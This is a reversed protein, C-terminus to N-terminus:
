LLDYRAARAAEPSQVRSEPSPRLYRGPTVGMVRKFQRTFHAQDAFGCATAAVAPPMGRELRLRAADVRRSMYYAYPTMAYRRAFARIFHYRGLGAQSAADSLSMPRCANAEIFDRARELGTGASVDRSAGSRRESAFSWLDNVLGVVIEELGFANHQEEAATIARRVRDALAADTVVHCDFFRPTQRSREALLAEILEMSPYIARYRWGEASAAVASHVAGPNIVLVDNTSARAPRGECRIHAAGSEFVGVVFWDHSHPAFAHDRYAARLTSIGGLVPLRSYTASEEAM